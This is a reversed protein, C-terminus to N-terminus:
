GARAPSPRGLTVPANRRYVVLERGAQLKFRRPDRIGNWRCLEELAVGFRQAIGWLSDGARVHVTARTRGPVEVGSGRAKALTTSTKRTESKRARSSKPAASFREASAFAVGQSRALENLPIVLETGAKVHRGPRLGNVRVILSQDV